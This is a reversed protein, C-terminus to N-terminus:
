KCSTNYDNPVKRKPVEKYKQVTDKVIPALDEDAVSFPLRVFLLRSETVKM